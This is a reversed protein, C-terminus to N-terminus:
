NTEQKRNERRMYMKKKTHAAQRIARGNSIEIRPEKIQLCKTFTHSSSTVDKYWSCATEVPPMVAPESLLPSLTDDLRSYVCKGFTRKKETM